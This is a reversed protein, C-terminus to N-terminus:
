NSGEEGSAAKELAAAILTLTAELTKLHLPVAPQAVLARWELDKFESVLDLCTKCTRLHPSFEDWDEGAGAGRVYSLLADARRHTAVRDAFAAWPPGM